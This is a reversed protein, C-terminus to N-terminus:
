TKDEGSLNEKQSLQRNTDICILQSKVILACHSAETGPSTKM